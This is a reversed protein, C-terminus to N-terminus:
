DDSALEAIIQAQNSVAIRLRGIESKYADIIGVLRAVDHDAIQRGDALRQRTIEVIDTTGPESPM